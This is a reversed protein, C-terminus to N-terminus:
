KLLIMKKTILFNEAAENVEEGAFESDRKLQYFYVGSSLDSANFHVTYKGAPKEENALIQIKEGLINFLTLTVKSTQPISYEITTVPNFPNPYNQSLKFNFAERDAQDSADTILGYSNTKVLYINPNNGAGFSYTYGVAAYGGDMTEEIDYIEEQWNGGYTRTWLTDGNEDTKVIYFDFYEVNFSSTYGGIIYGGDSTQCATFARETSEGGYTKAWLSDGTSNTKLLYFDSGGNGYSDTRGALIYGGDTTQEVAYGVEVDPGGFYKIWTVEGVENTKVLQFDYRSQTTSYPLVIVIYGGDTTQDISYATGYDYAKTWLTDGYSNTKIIYYKYQGYTEIDGCIIFGGDAAKKIKKIHDNETTGITKTWSTDGNIDIKILYIDGEGVGFSTSYGAILYHADDTKIIDQAEDYGSGGFTKTWLTDGDQNTRIIYFDYNGAGFSRTSAAIIFGGDDTQVVAYGEEEQPGGYTKQFTSQSYLISSSLILILYIFKYM